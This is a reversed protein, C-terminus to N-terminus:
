AAGGGANWATGEPPFAQIAIPEYRAHPRQLHSEFLVLRDVRWTV